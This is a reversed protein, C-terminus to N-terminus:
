FLLVLRLKKDKKLENILDEKWEPYTDHYLLADIYRGSGIHFYLNIEGNKTKILRYKGSPKSELFFHVENGDKNSHVDIIEKIKPKCKEKIDRIYEELEKILLLIHGDKELLIRVRETFETKKYARVKIEKDYLVDFIEKKLEDNDNIYVEVPILVENQKHILLSRIINVIKM